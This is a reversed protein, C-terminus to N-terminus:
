LREGPLEPLWWFAEQKLKEALEMIVRVQELAVARLGEITDNLEAVESELTNREGELKAVERNLGANEGRLRENDRALRKVKESESEGPFPNTPPTPDPMLVPDPDPTPNPIGPPDPDQEPEAALAAQFALFALGVLLAAAKM